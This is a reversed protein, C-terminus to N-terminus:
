GQVSITCKRKLQIKQFPDNQNIQKPDIIQSMKKNFSPFDYGQELDLQNKNVIQIKSLVLFCELLICVAWKELELPTQGFGRFASGGPHLGRGGM